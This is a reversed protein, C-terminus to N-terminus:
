VQQLFWESKEAADSNETGRVGMLFHDVLESVRYAKVYLVQAPITVSSIMGDVNAVGEVIALVVYEALQAEPAERGHPQRSAIPLSGRNVRGKHGAKGPRVNRMM